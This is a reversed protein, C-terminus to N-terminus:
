DIAKECPGYNGCFFDFFIHGNGGGEPSSSTEPTSPIINGSDGSSNASNGNSARGGSSSTRAQLLDGTPQLPFLDLTRNNCQNKRNNNDVTAVM